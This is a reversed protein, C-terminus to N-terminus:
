KESIMHLLEKAAEQPGKMEFGAIGLRTRLQGVKIGCDFFAKFFKDALVEHLERYQPPGFINAFYSHTLGTTTTTGKSMVMGERFINVADKYNKCIEIIPHDADINEYNNAYLVYDIDWGKLVNDINTVPLVIRANTRGPSMIIARDIQGFAYGPQLDDLRLFAGIETGYGIINNHEGIDLSGMDDAIIVMERLYEEGLIRFAELTESKGGGTDGILLVTAIKDNTLMINVLAGHFPLRGRKMMIINHLTLVMKKLYGFYGFRQSNPAAAVLMENEQDDYFMTPYDAMDKINDEEVGFVYVADPKKNIEDDEILEFLNCLSFGLEYFRKHIFIHINLPGVKAPYCIWHDPDIDVKELPNQGVKEFRGTRKNMPPYLVLPPYVLAQRIVPVESLKQYVGRPLDVQTLQAIAAVESGANVQRYVRPHKNSINEQIDRYTGRILHTLMEVTRNFVRYPRKDIAEIDSTCIIFRDYYRWYNYLYEVFGNLRKSDKLFVESDEVMNTVVNAPIKALVKLTAALVQISEENIERDGFIELLPSSHKKLYRICRRLIEKFLKSELLEEPTECIRTKIKIIANREFIDFSYIDM